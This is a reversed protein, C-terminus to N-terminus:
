SASRGQIERLAAPSGRTSVASVGNMNVDVLPVVPSGSSTGTVVDQAAVVAASM